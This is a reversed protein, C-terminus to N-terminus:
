YYNKHKSFHTNKLSARVFYLLFFIRPMGINNTVEDYYSKGVAMSKNGSKGPYFNLRLHTWRQQNNVAFYNHRTSPYGPRLATM